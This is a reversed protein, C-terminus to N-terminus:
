ELTNLMICVIIYMVAAPIRSTRRGIIMGNKPLLSNSIAYIYTGNRTSATTNWLKLLM